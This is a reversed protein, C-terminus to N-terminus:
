ANWKDLTLSNTSTLQLLKKKKVTVIVLL